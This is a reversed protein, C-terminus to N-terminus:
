LELINLIINLIYQYEFTQTTFLYRCKITLKVFSSSHFFFRKETTPRLGLDTLGKSGFLVIIKVGVTNAKPTNTRQVSAVFNHLFKPRARTKVVLTWHDIAFGFFFSSTHALSHAGSLFFCRTLFLPSYISLFLRHSERIERQIKCFERTVHLFTQPRKRSEKWRAVKAINNLKRFFNTMFYFKIIKTIRRRIHKHAHIYMHKHAHM